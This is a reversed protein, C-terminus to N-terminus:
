HARHFLGGGAVSLGKGFFSRGASGIEVEERWEWDAILPGWVEGRLRDASPTSGTEGWQRFAM